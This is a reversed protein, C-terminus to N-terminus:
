EINLAIIDRVGRGCLIEQYLYRIANVVCFVHETKSFFILITLIFHFLLWNQKFFFSFFTARMYMFWRGHM